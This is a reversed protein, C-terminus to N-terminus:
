YEGRFDMNLRENTGAKVIHHYLVYLKGSKIYSDVHYHGCYWMKFKIKFYIDNLFKETPSDMRLLRKFSNIENRAFTEPASHTIVYDVEFNVKELNNYAEEIEACSVEEQHWWSIGPSRLAKDVSLGGGMTFIKNGDINYVQGRMLHIVNDRMFQVKGGHWEKIPYQEIKDFNEHNGDVWLTTYPKTAYYDLRKEDRADGYFIAGFDGCIILYDDRTLEKELPFNDSYLKAIDIVGHTDGTICIM